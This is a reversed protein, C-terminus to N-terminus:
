KAKRGAAPRAAEAAARAKEEEAGNLRATVSDALPDLQNLVDDPGQVPIVIRDGALTGDRLYVQATFATVGGKRALTGSVIYDAGFRTALRAARDSSLLGKEEASVTGRLPTTDAFAFAGHSEMRGALMDPVFDGMGALDPDSSVAFPVIAVKKKGSQQAAATQLASEQVAVHALLTTLTVGLALLLRPSHRSRCAKLRDEV